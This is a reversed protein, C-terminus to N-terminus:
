KRLKFHNIFGLIDIRSNIEKISIWFSLAVFPIGVLYSWPKSVYKAIFFCFVGFVLQLIFLKVFKSDFLFDYKSKTIIYIQVFYILYGVFFSIGLGELGFFRYGFINILFMYISTILENWFYLKKEGKAILIIALAWSASKLYMGLAAWNLMENVGVFKGSYFIIIIWNIYILFFSLIPSIILMVMESQQNILEKSKIIDSSISSLKPFYSTQMASFIMGVYMNIITFGAVYLGVEDVGGYKNIYIRIVYSSILSIMGNISFLFGMKMMDNGGKVAEKFNIKEPKVKVKAAYFWSALLSFFSTLVIVPIIGNLKFVYYTPLAIILGAVSGVLTAKALSNLKQMGQLLVLKGNSFQQFLITISIIIFGLTYDKNSFTIQSLIPSLVITIIMGLLGTFLILKNLIAVTKSIKNEDNTENAAAVDKVATINLGFNTIGSVMSTTSTFLGSIGMGTPGLLVAIFKSKVVAILINFVQIGGFLTTTKFIDRYSNKENM